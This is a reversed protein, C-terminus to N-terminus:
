NNEYAQRVERLRNATSEQSDQEIDSTALYPGSITHSAAPAGLEFRDQMGWMMDRRGQGAM